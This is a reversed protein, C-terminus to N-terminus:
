KRGYLVSIHAFHHQIKLVPLGLEEAVVTANYKPHLDRAVVKPEVELLTEMRGITEKLAEVTRLDELDGCLPIPLIQRGCRHLIYKETRRWHCTGAKGRCRFWPRFHRM